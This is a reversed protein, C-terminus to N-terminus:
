AYANFYINRAFSWTDFSLVCLLLLVLMKLTIFDISPYYTFFCLLRLFYNLFCEFANLLFQLSILLVHLLPCFLMLLYRCSGQFWYFFHSTVFICFFHWCIISSYNKPHICPYPVSYCFVRRLANLFCQFLNRLYIVLYWIFSCPSVLVFIYVSSLFFSYHKPVLLISLLILLTSSLCVVFIISANFYFQRFILLVDFYGISICLRM